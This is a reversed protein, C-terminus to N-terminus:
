CISIRPCFQGGSVQAARLHPVCCRWRSQAVPLRNDWVPLVLAWIGCGITLVAGALYLIRVDIVDALGAAGMGVLFFLNASVILASAVRGRVEAVTNRQVLLRRAISYPANLFGSLMQVALAIPVSHLQSYVVGALGM